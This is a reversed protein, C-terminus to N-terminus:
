IKILGDPHPMTLADGAYGRSSTPPNSGASLASTARYLQSGSCALTDTGSPRCARGENKPVDYRQSSIPGGGDRRLRADRVLRSSAVRALVPDRQPRPSNTRRPRWATKSRGVIAKSLHLLGEPRMKFLIVMFVVTAKGRLESTVEPTRTIACGDHASLPGASWRAPNNLPASRRALSYSSLDASVSCSRQM